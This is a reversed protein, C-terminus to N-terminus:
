SFGRADRHHGRRSSRRPRVRRGDAIRVGSPVVYDTMCPVKDVAHVHLARDLDPIRVRVRVDSRLEVPGLSTWAVNPLLPSSTM